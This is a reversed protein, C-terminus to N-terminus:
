LGLESIISFKLFKIVTKYADFIVGVSSNRCHIMWIWLYRDLEYTKVPFLQGSFLQGWNYYQGLFTLNQAIYIYINKIYIVRYYLQNDHENEKNCQYKLWKKCIEVFLVFFLKLSARFTREKESSKKKFNKKTIRLNWKFQTLQSNSPKTWNLEVSVSTSHWTWRFLHTSRDYINELIITTIRFIWPYIRIIHSFKILFCINEKSKM